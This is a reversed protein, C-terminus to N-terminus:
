VLQERPEGLDEEDTAKRELALKLDRIKKKKENLLVVFKDLLADERQESAFVLSKLEKEVKLRARREEATRQEAEEMERNKQKSFECVRDMLYGVPDPVIHMKLPRAEFAAVEINNQITFNIKFYPERAQHKLLSKRRSARGSSQPGNSKREDLQATPDECPDVGEFLYRM